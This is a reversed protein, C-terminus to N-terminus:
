RLPTLILREILKALLAKLGAWLGSVASGGARRMLQFGSGLAEGVKRVTVRLLSVVATLAGRLKPLLAQMTRALWQLSQRLATLTRQLVAQLPSLGAENPDPPAQRAPKGEPEEQGQAQQHMPKAVEAAQEPADPREHQTTQAQQMQERVAEAIQQQLDAIVPAVAEAVHQQL